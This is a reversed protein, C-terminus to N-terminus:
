LKTARVLYLITLYPQGGEENVEATEGLVHNCAIYCEPSSDNWGRYHVYIMGQKNWMPEDKDIQIARPWDAIRNTFIPAIFLEAGPRIDDFTPLRFDKLSPNENLLKQRSIVKMTASEKHAVLPFPGYKFM